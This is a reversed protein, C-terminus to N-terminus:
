LAGDRQGHIEVSKLKQLIYLPTQWRCLGVRPVCVRETVLASTVGASIARLRGLLLKILEIIECLIDTFKQNVIM